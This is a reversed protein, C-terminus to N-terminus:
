AAQVGAGTSELYGLLGANLADPKGYKSKLPEAPIQLESVWAPLRGDEEFGCLLVRDAQTGLEDEVYALTPFLMAFIEDTSGDQLEVTRVLKLRGTSTVLVTLHRGSRRALVATGTAPALEVMAAAATTVTGPHLGSARFAAEYRAVIELASAVVVVETNGKSVQNAHFSLAAADVDFPVSKKMRFRVLSLQEEHNGPLQDFHLVSVRAAFDPLIVVARGRKRAARGGTIARIRDALAEPKLVNDALPSVALVGPELLETKPPVGAAPRAWAIGGETIEFVYDAPPDQLLTSLRQLLSAM